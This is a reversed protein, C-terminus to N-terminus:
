PLSWLVYSITLAPPDSTWGELHIKGPLGQGSHVCLWGGVMEESLELATPAVVTGLCGNFEPEVADAWVLGANNLPSLAFGDALYEFALDASDDSVLLGTELDLNSDLPMQITTSRSVAPTSTPTPLEPPPTATATVHVLIKVWFPSQGEPGIGFLKGNPDRLKFNGQFTGGSLPATLDAAVDLSEGPHVIKGVPIDATFGLPEGSFYVLMYSSDWICTGTNVLRWIKTFSQGAEIVTDDPITLDLPIGAEARLCPTFSSPLTAPVVTFEPRATVTIVPTLTPTSSQTPQPIPTDSVQNAPDATQTLIASITGYAQQRDAEATQSPGDSVVACATMGLLFPLLMGYVIWGTRKPMTRM